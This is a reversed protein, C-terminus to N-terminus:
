AWGDHGDMMDQWWTRGDNIAMMDNHAMTEAQPLRPNSFTGLPDVVRELPSRVKHPTSHLQGRQGICMEQKAEALQRPQPPSQVATLIGQLATILQTLQTEDIKSVKDDSSPAPQSINNVPSISPPTNPVGATPSMEVGDNTTGQFIAGERPSAVIPLFTRYFM